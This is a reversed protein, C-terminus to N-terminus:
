RRSPPATRRGRERPDRLSAVRDAVRDHEPGAVGQDGTPEPHVGLDAPLEVIRHPEDPLQGRASMEGHVQDDMQPRVPGDVTGVAVPEHAHGTAVTM